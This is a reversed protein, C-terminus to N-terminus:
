LKKDSKLNRRLFEGYDVPTNINSLIREDPYPVEVRAFRQLAQRFDGSDRLRRRLLDVMTHGLLIPHGGHGQCVPVAYGDHNVSALLKDLLGPELFPNDVNQIFCSCGEPLQKLGLHVSWTRGKGLHRNVVILQNEEQFPTTDFQENVVLVVPKCGYELFCNVLHESFTMGNGIPLLAKDHGMRGSTGAAPIIASFSGNMHSNANQLILFFSHHFNLLQM